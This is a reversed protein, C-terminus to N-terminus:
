TASETSSEGMPKHTWWEWWCKWDNMEIWKITSNKRIRQLIISRDILNFMIWGVAIPNFYNVTFNVSALHELSTGLLSFLRFNWTQSEFLIQHHISLISAKKFSICPFITVFHIQRQSITKIRIYITSTSLSCYYQSNWSQREDFEILLNESPLKWIM